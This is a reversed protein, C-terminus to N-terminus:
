QPLLLGVAVIAVIALIVLLTAGLIDKSHQTTMCWRLTHQGRRQSFVAPAGGSVRRHTGYFRGAASPTHRRRATIGLAGLPSVPFARGPMLAPTKEVTTGGAPGRAAASFCFRPPFV